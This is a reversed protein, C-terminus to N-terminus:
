INHGGTMWLKHVSARGQRPSRIVAADPVGSHPAHDSLGTIRPAEGHATVSAGVSLSRLRAGVLV